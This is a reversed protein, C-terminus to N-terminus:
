GRNKSEVTEILSAFLRVTSEISFNKFLKTQTDQVSAETLPPKELVELASKLIGGEMSAIKLSSENPLARLLGRLEFSVVPLGCALYQLVKNPLALHSVLSPRMPNIAVDACGLFFPLEEFDVYGTFIVRDELDLSKVLARLEPDQEGGGVLVLYIDNHESDAFDHIVETLGSFYFFSGMYLVVRSRQSIGLRARIQNRHIRASSFHFLDLPPNEVSVMKSPAGSEIAYSALAPNNASIHDANRFVYKEAWKIFTEFKSKRIRHSVDLARFIIPVNLDNAAMVAQWGSTPVSYSVIIDPSFERIIRRMTWYFTLVTTIRGCFSGNVGQPTFLTLSSKEVARGAIVKMFGQNSVEQKSWGEPFHVFGVDHGLVALHEPFEHMEFIPKELYNVEHLFLIRM